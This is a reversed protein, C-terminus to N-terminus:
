QTASLRFPKGSEDCRILIKAVLLIERTAPDANNNQKGRTPGPDLIM